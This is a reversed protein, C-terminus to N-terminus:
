PFRDIPKRVTQLAPLLNETYFRDDIPLGQVTKGLPRNKRNAGHFDSGGTVIMKLSNALKELRICEGYRAGSHWAEIGMLGQAKFEAIAAPLKAWSLYLSMPHAIVSVGQAAKIAQLANRLLVADREIYCPRGKALYKEFAEQITKVKKEEMLYRAFHPRGISGGEALQALRDKDIEIGTEKFKQILQDNREIRKKQANSLLTQMEPCDQSVGLGLLHFEGPQWKISLEVGRIVEIGCEKGAQVAEPVGDMTDHDTLALVSINEAHAKKVLDAPPFTGDSATSHTHLDVM